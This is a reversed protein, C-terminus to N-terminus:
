RKFSNPVVRLIWRAIKETRKKRSILGEWELYDREIDYSSADPIEARQFARDFEVFTRGYREEFRKIERELHDLKGQVADRLATQVATDLRHEGTYEILAKLTIPSLGLIAQDTM